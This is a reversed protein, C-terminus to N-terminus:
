ITDQPMEKLETQGERNRRQRDLRRLGDDVFLPIFLSSYFPYLPEHSQLGLKELNLNIAELGLIEILYEMNANSSFSIMGKVVERLPVSSHDIVSSLSQEWEEQAGGDLKPIYYRNLEDLAVRQNPDIKNQAAQQAYEVAVIIKTM